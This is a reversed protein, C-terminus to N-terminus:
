TFDRKSDSILRSFMSSFWQACYGTKACLHRTMPGCRVVDDFAQEGVYSQPQAFPRRRQHYALADNVLLALAAKWLRAEASNIQESTNTQEPQVYEFFSPLTPNM